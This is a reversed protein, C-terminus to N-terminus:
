TSRGARKAQYMAADAQQILTDIDSANDPYLSVGMSASMPVQRTGIKLPLILAETIRSAVLAAEAADRNPLIVVLEDGGLRGLWANPLSSWCNTAPRIDSRTTSTRSIISTSFRWRSM